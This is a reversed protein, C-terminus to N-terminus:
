GWGALAATVWLDRGCTKCCVGADLYRWLGGCHPCAQPVGAWTAVRRASDPIALRDPLTHGNRNLGVRAIQKDRLYGDWCIKTCYRRAARAKASWGYAPTPIERGCAPNQCRPTGVAPDHTGM